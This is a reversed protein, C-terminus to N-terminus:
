FICNSPPGRLIFAYFSGQRLSTDFNTIVLQQKGYQLIGIIISKLHKTAKGLILNWDKIHNVEAKKDLLEFVGDNTDLCYQSVAYFTYNTNWALHEFRKTDFIDKSLGILYVGFQTPGIVAGKEKLKKSASLIDQTSLTPCDNGLSIVHQFGMDFIEQMANTLKEGFTNGEQRSEDFVFYPLATKQVLGKVKSVLFRSTAVNAKVSNAIVKNTAEAESNRSFILIALDNIHLSTTM